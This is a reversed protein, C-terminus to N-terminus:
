KGSESLEIEFTTDAAVKSFKLLNKELVVNESKPLIIRRNGYFSVAFKETNEPFYISVKNKSIRRIMVSNRLKWWDALEMYTASFVDKRSIKELVTEFLRRNYPVDAFNSLSFDFTLLGNVSRVAQFINEVMKKADEFPVQKTKSLKLTSDTFVLPIEPCNRFYQFKNGTFLKRSSLVFFPFGIGCVFGSNKAFTLSSDYIFEHKNHLQPTFNLDFRFGNQRVGCRKKKLIQMLNKKQKEHVDSKYSFYSALLSIEKGSQLIKSIEEKLEEDETDYDVDEPAENETGLFFTSKIKHETEMEEIISFNWYEEINTFLFRLKRFLERFFYKFKYFYFLDSFFSILYGGFDWKQLKDINHSVVAAFKQAEPWFEKKFIFYDKKEKMADDIFQELLWLFTNVFPYKGYKRFPSDEADKGKGFKRIESLHFYINGIFDFNFIGYYINEDFFCNIPLTFSNKAIIPLPHSLKIERLFSRIQSDSMKQPEYLDADFPVFFIIRRFAVFYAEDVTLKILGYYFLIDNEELESITSIFKFEYGLTKFIFDCTYRIEREFKELHKDIYVAIM